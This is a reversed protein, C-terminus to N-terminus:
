CGADPDSPLLLQFRVSALFGTQWNWVLVYEAIDYQNTNPIPATLNVAFYPGHIGLLHLEMNGGAAISGPVVLKSVAATPHSGGTTM